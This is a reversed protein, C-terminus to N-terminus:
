NSDMTKLFDDYKVFGDCDFDAQILTERLEEPRLAPLSLNSLVIEFDAASLVGDGDVDMSEWAARLENEPSSSNLPMLLLEIFYRLNIYVEPSSGDEGGCTTQSQPTMGGALTNEVQQNRKDIGQSQKIKYVLDRVQNFTYDFGIDKLAIRLKSITLGKGPIPGYSEFLSQATRITDQPITPHDFIESLVPMPTTKDTNSSPLKRSRTDVSM